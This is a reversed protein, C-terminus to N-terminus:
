TQVHDGDKMVRDLVGVPLPRRGSDVSSTDWFARAIHGSARDEFHRNPATVFVSQAGSQRDVTV